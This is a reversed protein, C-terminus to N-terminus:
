RRLRRGGFRLVSRGARARVRWRWGAAMTAELRTGIIVSVPLAAQEVAVTWEDGRAFGIVPDGGM